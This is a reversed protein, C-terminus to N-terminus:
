AFAKWRGIISVAGTEDCAAMMGTPLSHYLALTTRIISRHTIGLIMNNVLKAVQSNGPKEGYFFINSGMADFYPQFAKVIEESGSTM